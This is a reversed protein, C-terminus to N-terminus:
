KVITLQASEYTFDPLTISSYTLKDKCMHKLLVCQNIYTMIKNRNRQFHSLLLM